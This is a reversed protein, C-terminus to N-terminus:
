VVGIKNDKIEDLRQIAATLNGNAVLHQAERTKLKVGQSLAVVEAGTTVGSDKIGDAFGLVASRNEELIKYNTKSM